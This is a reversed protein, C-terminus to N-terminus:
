RSRTAQWAARSLRLDRRPTLAGDRSPYAVTCRGEVQFGLNDLIRGSAPNDEAHGSTLAECRMEAFAHEVAARAAESAYGRGWHSPALYYGLDATLGDPPIEDLSVVGIFGGLEIAWVRAAGTEHDRALREMYEVADALTYPWPIARLNRGVSADGAVRAVDPADTVRIPRLTLRATRLTPFPMCVPEPVVRAHERAARVM